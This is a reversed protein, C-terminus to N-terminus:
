LLDAFARASVGQSTEGHKRWLPKGILIQM